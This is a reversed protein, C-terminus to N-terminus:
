DSDAAEDSAEDAFTPPHPPPVATFPVFPPPTPFTIPHDRNIDMRNFMDTYAAWQEAEFISRQQFYAMQHQNQRIIYDNQASLHTSWEDDDLSSSPEELAPLNGQPPAMPAAANAGAPMGPLAAERYGRITRGNITPQGPLQSENPDIPVDAHRCLATIVAPHALGGTTKQHAVQRINTWIVHGVDISMGELIAYLLVARDRTVESYNKVPLLRAAIFYMWARAIRLMAPKPLYQHIGNKMAWQTGPLCIRDRVANYDIESSLFHRYDDMNTDFRPLELIENITAPTFPVWKGRVYVRDKRSDLVNAYFERVVSAVGSSFMPVCFPEWHRTEINSEIVGLTGLDCPAISLGRERICERNLCLRAFKEAGAQTVFLTSYIEDEDPQPRKRTDRAKTGSTSAGGRNAKLKKVPM